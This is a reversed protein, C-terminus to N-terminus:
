YVWTQGKFQYLRVQTLSNFYILKWYRFRIPMGDGQVAIYNFNDGRQAWESDVFPFDVYYLNHFYYLLVKDTPKIHSALYGDVDYFDGLNFQLHKAMFAAKSEKGFIVPLFKSVAIGRYVLSLLAVVAIFILFIKQWNKSLHAILFIQLVSFAILYPLIYRGGGTQPTIYWSVLGGIAFLLLLPVERWLKKWFLILFPLGALFIPHIPDSAKGFTEWFAKLLFLPNILQRSDGIYSIKSFMPYVPNGTHIFSFTFWPLLPLLVISLFAGVRQLRDSTSKVKREFFLLVVCYILVDPLALLKTSITLGVLLSFYVFYKRDKKEAWQFFALLAASAFFTRALDIYGSISEWGVVLNSYFIVPALIAWFPSVFKRVLKYVVLCTLLGFIFQVSRAFIDSGFALGATFLMETLRPMNSYYLIGGPIHMVAHYLLYLKPLTLHYWTADFGIEPGFLGISNVAAQTIVYGIGLIEIFIYKHHIIKQFFLGLKKGQWIVIAIWYIITLVILLPKYLLGLLGLFFVIYSFIGIALAIELM